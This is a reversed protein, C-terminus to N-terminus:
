LKGELINKFEAKTLNSSLARKEKLAEHISVDVSDKMSLTIYRVKRTQGIRHVRDMSQLKNEVSWDESFYVVCNCATMTLGYQGISQQVVAAKLEGRQFRDVVESRKESPVDGSIVGFEGPTKKLAAEINEIDQRYTAWILVPGDADEVIECLAEIKPNSGPLCRTIGNEDYVWGNCMQRAKIIKTMANTAPIVAGGVMAIMEKVMEEYSKKWGSPWPLEYQQEIRDPLDLCEDKTFRIGISHMKEKLEDLNQYDVIDKFRRGGAGYREAVVGYRARFKFYNAGFVRPDLFRYQGFIDLPSQAVPTGTIGIRKASHGTAAFKALAKSQKASAHKIKTMEDAVVIDFDYEHLGKCDKSADLARVGEYNIIYIGPLAANLINIRRKKAVNMIFVNGLSVSYHKSHVDLEKAWVSVVVNPAVILARKCDGVETSYDIFDIVSKTKGTGQDSLVAPHEVDQIFNFVEDQHAYPQTKPEYRRSM